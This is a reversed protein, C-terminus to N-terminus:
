IAGEDLKLRAHFAQDVNRLHAPGLLVNMGALDNGLALLHIHPHAPDIRLLAADRKAQPLDLLIGPDRKGGIVPGAGDDLALYAVDSFESQEDTDIAADLAHNM